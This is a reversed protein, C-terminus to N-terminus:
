TSRLVIGNGSARHARKGYTKHPGKDPALDASSQDHPTRYPAVPERLLPIQSGSLTEPEGRQTIGAPAWSAVSMTSIQQYPLSEDKSGGRSTLGNAGLSGPNPM